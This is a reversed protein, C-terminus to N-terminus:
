WTVIKDDKYIKDCSECIGEALAIVVYLFENDTGSTEIFCGVGGVKRQGYIIPIPANASTKNVLVGKANQEPVNDMTPTDPIDPKRLWSIVMMGVQIATVWGGINWGKMRGFVRVIQPAYKEAQGTVFSVADSIWGM